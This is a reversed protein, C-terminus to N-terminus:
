DRTGWGFESSGKDTTIVLRTVRCPAAVDMTVGVSMAQATFPKSLRRQPDTEVVHCDNADNVTLERIYAAEKGINRINLITTGALDTDDRQSVRFDGANAFLKPALYLGVIVAALLAVIAM